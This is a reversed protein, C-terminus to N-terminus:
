SCFPLLADRMEEATVYRRGRDKSIARDVAEILEAPLDPCHTDLRSPEDNLIAAFATGASTFDFPLRGSLYYYLTIGTAYLDCTPKAYRCDRIQEPPMFALTGRNDGDQTISSMGTTVYNKALGFDALKVWLTKDTRSLLINAPKIDRHILSLMHAHNLAELVNCVINCAIRMRPLGTRDDLVDNHSITPVYEMALFPYGSALGVEYFKVIGPHNLQSLVSAERVFLRTADTQGAHVPLIIKLAVIAGSSSQVARFVRGMSGSGIEEILEYGPIQPVSVANEFRASPPVANQRANNSLVNDNPTLQGPTLQGPPQRDAVENPITFVIRTKGGSIVDGSKLFTSQVTQGNVLTGNHSDLDVLHCNPPVFELRFHYRSFYPDQDLQLQADSARGVLVTEHREFTFAAGQHPGAIIKVSVQPSQKVAENNAAAASISVGVSDFRQRLVSGHEPFRRFYEAADVDREHRQRVIFESVILEIVADRDNSLEAFQGLYHEVRTQQGSKLRFELDVHILEALLSLRNAADVQLFDRIDPSEGRFWCEEFESLVDERQRDAPNFFEQGTNPSHPM